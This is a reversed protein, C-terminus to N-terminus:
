SAEKPRYQAVLADGVATPVIKRLAQIRDWHRDSAAVVGYDDSYNAYWDHIKLLKELLYVPDGDEREKEAKMEAWATRVAEGAQEKSPRSPVYQSRGEFEAMGGWGDVRPARHITGLAGARTVDLVTRVTTWSTLDVDVLRDPMVVAIAHGPKGAWYAIDKLSM